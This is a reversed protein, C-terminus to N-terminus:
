VFCPPSIILLLVLSAFLPPPGVFTGFSFNTIIIDPALNPPEINPTGFSAAAEKEAGMVVGDVPSVSITFSSPMPKSSDKTSGRIM